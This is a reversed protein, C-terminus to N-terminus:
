KSAKAVSKETAKKVKPLPKGGLHFKCHPCRADTVKAEKACKPCFM